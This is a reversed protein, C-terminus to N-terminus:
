RLQEAVRRLLWPFLSLDVIKQLTHVDGPMVNLRGQFVRAVRQSQQPSLNQRPKASYILANRYARVLPLSIGGPLWRVAFSFGFPCDNARASIQPVKLATSRLRLAGNANAAEFDRRRSNPWDEEATAQGAVGNRYLM